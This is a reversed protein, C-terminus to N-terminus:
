LTVSDCFRLINQTPLSAFPTWSRGRPWIGWSDYWICLCKANDLCKKFDILSPTIAVERPLRNWNEIMGQSFFSKRIDLRFRGQSLKLGNGQTRDHPVLSCLGSEGSGKMLIKFVVIPDSRLTRKELSFLGLARLWEECLKGELGKVKRTAEKPHEELPRM